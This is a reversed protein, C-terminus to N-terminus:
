TNDIPQFAQIADLIEEGLQKDKETLTSHQEANMVELYLQKNSKAALFGLIVLLRIREARKKGALTSLHQHIGSFGDDHILFNSRIPDSM